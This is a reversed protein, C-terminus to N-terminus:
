QIILVKKEFFAIRKKLTELEIKMENKEDNLLKKENIILENESILSENKQTLKDIKIRNEEITKQLNLISELNSELEKELHIIMKEYEKIKSQIEQDEEKSIVKIEEEILNNKDCELKIQDDVIKSKLRKKDLM